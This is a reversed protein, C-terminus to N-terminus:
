IESEEAKKVKCTASKESIAYKGIARCFYQNVCFDWKAKREKLLTCRISNDDTQRKAYECKGINPM